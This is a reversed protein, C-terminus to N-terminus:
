VGNETNKRYVYSNGLKRRILTGDGFKENLRLQATSQCCGWAKQAMKSTIEGPEIIDHHVENLEILLELSEKTIEIDQDTLEIAM